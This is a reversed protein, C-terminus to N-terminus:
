IGDGLIGPILTSLSRRYGQGGPSMYEIDDGKPIERSSGARRTFVICRGMVRTFVGCRSPQIRPGSLLGLPRELSIGGVDDGISQITSRQCRPGSLFARM